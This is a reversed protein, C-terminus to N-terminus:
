DSETYLRKLAPPSYNEDHKALIKNAIFLGKEWHGEAVVGQGEKFLDPTIGKYIVPVRNEYDTVVFHVILTQADRKLSEKEVVGGLRCFQSQEDSKKALLETPTVYYMLNEQLASFVFIGLGLAMFFYLGLHTLRKKQRFTM